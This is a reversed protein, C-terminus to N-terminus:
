IEPYGIAEIKHAEIIKPYAEQIAHEAMHSLLAMEGVRDVVVKEPVHGKRFGPVEMHEGLHKVAEARHKELLEFPLEGEIKVSSGAQKTATINKLDPTM